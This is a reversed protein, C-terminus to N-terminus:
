AGTYVEGLNHACAKAIKEPLDGWAYAETLYHKPRETIELANTACELAGKWDGNDQSLAALDVWPERDSPSETAADLLWRFAFTRENLRVHCRAIYRMAASREVHSKRRDTMHIYRALEIIADNWRGWYMLERGYYFRARADDPKEITTM